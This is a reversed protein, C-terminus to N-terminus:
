YRRSSNVSVQPRLRTHWLSILANGFACASVQATHPEGILASREVLCNQLVAQRIFSYRRRFAAQYNDAGAAPAPPPPAHGHLSPAAPSPRESQNLDNQLSKNGCVRPPLRRRNLAHRVYNHRAPHDKLPTRAIDARACVTSLRSVDPPLNGPLRDRFYGAQKGVFVASGTGQGGGRFGAKVRKVGQRERERADM